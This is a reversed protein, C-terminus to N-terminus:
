KASLPQTTNSRLWIDGASKILLAVAPLDAETFLAIGVAVVAQGIALLVTRSKLAKLINEM